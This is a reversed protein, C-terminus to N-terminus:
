DLPSYSDLSSLLDSRHPLWCKGDRYIYQVCVRGLVFVFLISRCSEREKERKKSLSEYKEKTKTGKM